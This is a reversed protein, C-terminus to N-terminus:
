RGCVARTVILAPVAVRVAVQALAGATFVEEDAVHLRREVRAGRGVERGDEAGDGFIQLALVDNAEVRRGVRAAAKM